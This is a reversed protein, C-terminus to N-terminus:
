PMQTPEIRELPSKGSMINYIKKIYYDIFEVKEPHDLRELVVLLLFFAKQYNNDLLANDINTKSLRIYLDVNDNEM